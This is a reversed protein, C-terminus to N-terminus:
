LAGGGGLGQTCHDSAPGTGRPAARVLAEEVRNGACGDDDGLNSSPATKNFPYNGM